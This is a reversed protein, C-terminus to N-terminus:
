IETQYLKKLTEIEENGNGKKEGQKKLYDIEEKLM